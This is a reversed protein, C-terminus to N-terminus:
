RTGGQAAIHAEISAVLVAVARRPPPAPKPDPTKTMVAHVMRDWEREARRFMSSTM